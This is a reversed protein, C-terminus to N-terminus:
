RGAAAAECLRSQVPPVTQKWLAPLSAMPLTTTPRVRQEASGRGRGGRALSAGEGRDRRAG